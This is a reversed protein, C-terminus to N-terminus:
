QDDVPIQRLDYAALLILRNGVPPADIRAFFVLLVGSSIGLLLLLEDTAQTVRFAALILTLQLFAWYALVRRLRPAIAFSARSM